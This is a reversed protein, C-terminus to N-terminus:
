KECSILVYDIIGKESVKKMKSLSKELIREVYSPYVSRIKSGILHKNKHYYDALPGYVNSGIKQLELIKFREKQIVSTVFDMSYHESSWTFSLSGLKSIPLVYKKSMVPIAISLIGNKKLIRRSESFFKAIPKFHQASELSLVKDVSSDRFPLKVASANVSHLVSSDKKVYKENFKSDVLQITNINVSAVTVGYDNAWQFAPEGFGSGIDAIVDGKHLKAFDGFIRCLNKQASLPTTTTEDWYGFNLMNGGTAIQMIKSLSNYLNVVDSENRRFTWFFLEIPNIILTVM